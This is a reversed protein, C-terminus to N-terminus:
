DILYFLVIGLIAAHGEVRIEASDARLVAMPWVSAGEGIKVDGIIRVSVDVQAKPHIVPTKDGYATIRANSQM